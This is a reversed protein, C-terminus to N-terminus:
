KGLCFEKFVRDLIQDDYHEGLIKQLSVLAEKLRQSIFEAGLGSKFDKICDVLHKHADTTLEFQRVSSILSNEQSPKTNFLRTLESLIQERADEDLASVSLQKLFLAKTLEAKEGLFDLSSKKAGALLDIKNAILFIPAKFSQQALVAVEEASLGLAADYIYFIADSEHASKFSRQIGIKEVEDQTSRVGATDSFKILFGFYNTEGDVVDRTTGAIPSVIARDTELLNNLLSSKGSNPKGLLTVFIGEKLARGTKFSDALVAVEQRLNILKNELVLNDVVDLGETSFDISAEIHALCWTLESVIKKFVESLKGGLQRHGMKLSEESDSEIVSLVGEAQVLDIKGNMFARYTFEGPTAMSAGSDLLRQIIREVVYPSGHCNFEVCEEGTYSKGKAFYSVVVQDLRAGDASQFDALRIQHSLINKSKLGPCVELLINKSNSGSLRVVAIASHGPPTAL